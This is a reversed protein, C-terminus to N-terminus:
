TSSLLGKCIPLLLEAADENMEPSPYYLNHSWPEGGALDPRDNAPDVSVPEGTFRSFLPQPSGRDSVCEVYHDCRGAVKNVMEENILHPFESFLRGLTKYSEDYAPTRKSFWLFIVPVTVKALLAETEALWGARTEEVVRRMRPQALLRALIRSARGLPLNRIASSGALLERYAESAGLKRGDSRREIFELGGSLFMSNSQSRGSMAQMVLFRGGNIADILSDHAAFFEPGGGGYGLNLAPLDIEEAVLNPYPNECFCGLTQAAGICTFYRGEGMEPFPGRFRLGSGPFETMHYDVVDYDRAQYGSLHVEKKMM